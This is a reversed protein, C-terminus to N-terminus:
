PLRFLRRANATTASAVSEVSEGRLRAITAVIHPLYQPENRRDKPPQPLDRPLLYPADTEVLLRDTPIDKVLAQLELGRREDCIWGTIGIYLGLDLYDFLAKRDGTFCHIVGESWCQRNGKLMALMREAADREHLFLPLGSSEALGLQQEFAWEQAEPPSFNRNFDLGTEGVAMVREHQLLGRLVELGDQDLQSAGHPHVGATAFCWPAHQLALAAVERSEDVSTGTLLLHSVGAAVAREVVAARDKAFRESSLNLGIDVLM